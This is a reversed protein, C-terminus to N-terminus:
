LNVLLSLIGTILCISSAWFLPHKFDFEYGKKLKRLQTFIIIAVAILYQLIFRSVNYQISYNDNHTLGNIIVVFILPYFVAKLIVNSVSKPKLLLLYFYSLIIFFWISYGLEIALYFTFLLSLFTIVEVTRQYKNSQSTASNEQQIATNNGEYELYFSKLKQFFSTPLIKNSIDNKFVFLYIGIGLIIIFFLLYAKFSVELGFLDVNYVELPPSIKKKRYYLNNHDKTFIGFVLMLLSFLILTFSVKKNELQKM